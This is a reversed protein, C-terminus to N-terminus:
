PKAALKTLRRVAVKANDLSNNCDTERSQKNASPASLGSAMLKRELAIKRALMGPALTLGAARFLKDVAVQADVAAESYKFSDSLLIVSCAEMEGIAVVAADVERNAEDLSVRAQAHGALILGFLVVLSRLQM